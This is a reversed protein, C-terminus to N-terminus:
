RKVPKADVEIWDLRSCSASRGGPMLDTFGIEEVNSLDPSKAPGIETVRNIDLKYWTIEQINFEKIRWDKAPGDSLDSVLWSGNALKLVVRLERLGAQKSRWRIKAFGTLDANFKKHKLTVLWNELCLGSWVYFPDDVPRDHNSKKLSDKGAGYLQLLLEPNNVHKQSLPIEPPTEKWDERFFLGPRYPNQACVAFTSLFLLTAILTKTKM